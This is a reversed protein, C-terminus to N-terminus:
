DIPDGECHVEIIHGTEALASNILAHTLQRDAYSENCYANVGRVVNENIAACGSIFIILLGFYFKKM